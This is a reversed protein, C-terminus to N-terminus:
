NRVIAGAHAPLGEGNHTALVLEGRPRSRPESTTNVTVVHDGREYAVVGPEADLLRFGEGLGRRLEILRRYLTLLSGPDNRQAEVSRQQPDVPPLWPKGTTFGGAPGSDWQMPHRMGDRGARDFPPDGGPGNALGIEDGQYVFAAGPLTLLLLAAARLNEPGVRTALRDFDHNSMVWAVRGLEAAPEIAARLREANWPSFLFEFAFVLDLAELYRPYESVPRFVEGVLLADGAAQRIAKLAAVVEPRNGSHLLELKAADEHLPLPFPKIAPPDDRLQEDKVLRDIADLRFGDAGRDRWFRVVGQVAEVVEPNRWDLDPQEPYFSHMYWRGSREDRSWAPGDFASVWNNPPGEVPSWIYWDPNERFWPHEISTHSPILDLLVRLGREHAAAVLRDFDDLSGLQPDVATYDSVDYGFDALPSPYMPSLWFADVGLWVLYDLREAIGRLDGVGDGDADQFSRPYIQYVVADRWWM